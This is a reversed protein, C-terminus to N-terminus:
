SPADDDSIVDFIWVCEGLGDFGSVVTDAVELVYLAGKVGLVFVFVLVVFRQLPLDVYKFLGIRVAAPLVLGQHVAQSLFVGLKGRQHGLPKLVRVELLQQVM